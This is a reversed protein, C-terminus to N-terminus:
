RGPTPADKSDKRLSNTRRDRLILHHFVAGGETSYDKLFRQLIMPKPRQCASRSHQKCLPCRAALNATSARIAVLNGDLSIEDISLKEPITFSDSYFNTNSM